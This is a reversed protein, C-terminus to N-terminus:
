VRASVLHVLGSPERLGDARHNFYRRDIEAPALDEVHHFGVCRLLSDLARSDVCLQIAEDEDAFRSALGDMATVGVPDRAPHCLSRRVAYDFVVGSGAPLSGIFELTALTARASTDPAAGLWSFFSVEGSQFGAAPLASSLHAAARGVEFVRLNPNRNRYGLADLGVGVIVYQTAGRSIAADLEDEAYRSRAALLACDATLSQAVGRM